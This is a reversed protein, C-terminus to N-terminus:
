LWPLFVKERYAAYEKGFAVSLKEEERPSYIRSFIYLVAGLAFCLWTDLLLGCGPIVLLAVSTYLPHLMVAYPGTTILRGKPAVALVQVVSILWIPIGVVLLVTGAIIGGRGFRMAFVSPWLINAIVGVVAFPLTLGVIRDGAGVLAKIGM